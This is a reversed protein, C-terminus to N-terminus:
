HLLAHILLWMGCYVISHLKDDMDKDVIFKKDQSSMVGWYICLLITFWILQMSGSPRIIGSCSVPPEYHTFGAAVHILYLYHFLISLYFPTGYLQWNEGSDECIVDWLEGLDECIVDWLEGM